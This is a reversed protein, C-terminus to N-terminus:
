PCQQDCQEAQDLLICLQILLIYQIFPLLLLLSFWGSRECLKCAEWGNLFPIYAKWAPRGRKKLISSLRHALLLYAALFLFGTIGILWRRPLHTGTLGARVWGDQVAGYLLRGEM